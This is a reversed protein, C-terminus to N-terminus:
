MCLQKFSHILPFRVLIESYVPLFQQYHLRPVIKKLFSLLQVRYNGNKAVAPIRQLFKYTIYTTSTIFSLISNLVFLYLLLYASMTPGLLAGLKCQKLLSFKANKTVVLSSVGTKFFHWHTVNIRKWSGQLKKEPDKPATSCDQHKLSLYMQCKGARVM